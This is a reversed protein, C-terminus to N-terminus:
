FALQRRDASTAPRFFCTSSWDGWIGTDPDMPAFDVHIAQGERLLAESSPAKVGYDTTTTGARFREAGILVIFPVDYWHERIGQSALHARLAYAIDQESMGPRLSTMVATFTDACASQLNKVIQATEGNTM